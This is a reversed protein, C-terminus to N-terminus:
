AATAPRDVKALRARVVRVIWVIFLVILALLGAMVTLSVFWISQSMTRLLLGVNIGLV